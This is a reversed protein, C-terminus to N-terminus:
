FWNQGMSGSNDLHGRGPSDEIIKRWVEDPIEIVRPVFGIQNLIDYPASYHLQSLSIEEKQQSGMEKSSLGGNQPYAFISSGEQITQVSVGFKQYCNHVIEKEIPFDATTM